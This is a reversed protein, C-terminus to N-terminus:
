DLSLWATQLNVPGLMSVSVILFSSGVPSGFVLIQLHSGNSWDDLFVLPCRQWAGGCGRSGAYHVCRLGRGGGTRHESLM